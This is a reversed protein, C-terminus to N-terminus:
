PADQGHLPLVTRMDGHDKRSINHLHRMCVSLLMFAGRDSAGHQTRCAVHTIKCSHQVQCACAASPAVPTSPPNRAPHSDASPASRASPRASPPRSAALRASGRTSQTASRSSRWARWARGEEHCGASRADCISHWQPAHPVSHWPAQRVHWSHHQIACTTSFAKLHAFVVHLQSQVAKRCATELVAHATCPRSPTVPVVCAAILERAQKTAQAPGPGPQQAPGTQRAGRAAPPAAPPRAPRAALRARRRRLQAPPAPLRPWAHRATPGRAAALASPRPSQM